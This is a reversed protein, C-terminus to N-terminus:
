QKSIDIEFELIMNEALKNLNSKNNSDDVGSSLNLINKNM